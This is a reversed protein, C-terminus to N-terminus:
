YPQPMRYTPQPPRYGPRPPVPPPGPPGYGYPPMPYLPYPPQGAPFPGQMPYPPRQAEGPRPYFQPPAAAPPYPPMVQRTVGAAGPNPDYPLAQAAPPRPVPPPPRQPLNPSPQPESLIDPPGPLVTALPQRPQSLIEQLKEIRVRCLHVVKRQENYQELFVELAFHGELFREALEESEEEIKTGEAQLTLLLHDTNAAKSFRELQKRQEEVTEYLRRLETYKEQLRGKGGELRPKFELNKEAVSRNTALSMERELQLNQVEESDLVLTEQKEQSHLVERLQEQSLGKLKNMLSVSQLPEM